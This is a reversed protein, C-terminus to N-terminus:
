RRSSLGYVPHRDPLKRTPNSGRVSGTRAGIREVAPAARRQPKAWGFDAIGFDLIGIPGIRMM